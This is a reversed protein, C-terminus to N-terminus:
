KPPEKGEVAKCISDVLMKNIESLYCLTLCEAFKSILAPNNRLATELEKATYNRLDESM